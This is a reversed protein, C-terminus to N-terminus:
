ESGEGWSSAPGWNTGEVTADAADGPGRLVVVVWDSDARVPDLQWTGFEFEVSLGTAAADRRLAAVTYERDTAFGAIIRGGPRLLGVLLRLVQQETGPALFVMVNGPLAVVDFLEPGGAARLLEPTLLLLDCELYPVEDYRERAQAVLGADKDVGICHHGMRRLADAVRGTGCGADLVAAGRPCIVNIFRAEGELDTGGAAMTALRDVYLDWKEGQVQQEWLTEPTATLALVSADVASDYRDLVVHALATGLPEAVVVGLEAARRGILDLLLGPSVFLPVVIPATSWPENLADIARPEATAFVARVPGQRTGAWLQALEAVAQNAMPDSTGVATLLIEQDPLVGALHASKVLAALVDPGLGLIETGILEVGAALRAQELAAPVDVRAHFAQAFLLPVVVAREADLQAVATELDPVTLDLYAASVALGPRLAAVADLLEEIAVAARPDRSGHALGVLVPAPRVSDNM